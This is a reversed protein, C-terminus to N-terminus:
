RKLLAAELTALREDTERFRDALAKVFPALWSNMGVGEVLTEATVVSVTLPGLAEVSASRPKASLIATEGFVEGPGMTRLVLKEGEIVKFAQCTGSQIIYAADGPDGERAVVTGTPFTQTPLEPGGRLYHLVDARLALVSQYREDPNPAMAKMAIQCLGRPLTAALTMESAPRVRCAQALPLKAQYDAGVYPPYSTFINYLIGGLAFIDSREDLQAVKGQAQEPPMFDVSGIVMGDFDLEHREPDLTVLPDNPHRDDDLHPRGKDSILDAVGWDMMYVQGYTGVMINAPKLDRHIVGRSHAFAVADCVKLFIELLEGVWATRRPEGHRANVMKELTTGEVLKMTFFLCGQEDVGLEHIPVINPHDLQGTIQAEEVFRQRYNPDGALQPSLVKMASTRLLDKEFIRHVTGMGGRAIEGSDAFRQPPRPAAPAGGLRSPREARTPPGDTASGDTSRDRFLWGLWKM